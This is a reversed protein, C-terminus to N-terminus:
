KAPASDYYPDVFSWNVYGNLNEYLDTYSPVTESAWRIAHYGTVPDYSAESYADAILFTNNIDDYDNFYVVYYYGEEDEEVDSPLSTFTVVFAGSGNGFSVVESINATYDYAALSGTYGLTTATISYQADYEPTELHTYWDGYPVPDDLLNRAVAGSDYGTATDCGAFLVAGMALAAACLLLVAGPSLSGHKKSSTKMKM